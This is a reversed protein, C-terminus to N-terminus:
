IRKTYRAVGRAVIIIILWSLLMTILTHSFFHDGTMMKYLGMSWGVVVAVGLAIFRNKRKQFLFFLSMLAFGGSAHGAPWCKIRDNKLEFDDAYCEWVATRPYSGNYRIEDEPCPMNTTAKLQGVVSPILIASFVVILLGRRYPKLREFKWSGLLAFLATVGIFIVFKKAGDYFIARYPQEDARVVFTKTDFNYLYDEILIDVDYIGFFVIVGVLLLFVIAIHKNSVM